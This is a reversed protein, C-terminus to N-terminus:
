QLSIVSKPTAVIARAHGLSSEILNHAVFTVSAPNRMRLSSHLARLVILTSWVSAESLPNLQMLLPHGWTNDILRTSQQATVKTPMFARVSPQGSRCNITSSPNFLIVSAPIHAMPFLHAFSREILRLPHRPILNGPIFATAVPHERRCDILKSPQQQTVSSNRRASPIPHGFKCWILTFWEFIVSEIRSTILTRHGLRRGMLRSSHTQTESIPTSAIIRSHVPSRDILRLLVLTVSETTYPITSVQGASREM